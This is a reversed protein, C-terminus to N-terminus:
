HRCSACSGSSCGACGSTGGGHLSQGNSKAFFVSVIKHTQASHCKKCPIPADADKMPRLAEFQYGCNECSYEYLPM